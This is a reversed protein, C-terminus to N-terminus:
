KFMYGVKGQVYNITDRDCYHWMANLIEGGVNRRIKKLIDYDILLKFIDDRHNQCVHQLYYADLQSVNNHVDGRAICTKVAEIDCNEIAEKLTTQKIEKPSYRLADYYKQSVFNIVNIDKNMHAGDIANNWNEEQQPTITEFIIKLNELGCHACVSRICEEIIRNFERSNLTRVHEYICKIIELNGTNCAAIFVDGGVLTEDGNTLDVTSNKSDENFKQLLLKIVDINKKHIAAFLGTIMFNIYERNNEGNPGGYIYSKYVPATKFAEIVNKTIGSECVASFKKEPDIECEFSKNLLDIIDYAGVSYAKYFAHEPRNAGCNIMFRAIQINKNKCALELGLNYDCEGMHMAYKIIRMSNNLAGYGILNNNYKQFMQAITIYKEIGCSGNFYQKIYIDNIIKKWCSCVLLMCLKSDTDTFSTVYQNTFYDLTNM